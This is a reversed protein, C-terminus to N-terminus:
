VSVYYVDDTTRKIGTIKFAGPSGDCDEILDFVNCSKPLRSFILTFSKAGVGVVTWTPYASIGEAHVLDSVHDSHQDFLYTSPWIRIADGGLLSAYICHVIVQGETETLQQLESLLDPDIHLKPRAIIHAMPINSTFRSTLADVEPYRLGKIIFAL